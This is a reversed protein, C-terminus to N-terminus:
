LAPIGEQATKTIADAADLGAKQASVEAEEANIGLALTKRQHDLQIKM